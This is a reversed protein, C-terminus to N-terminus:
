QVEGFGIDRGTDWGKIDEEVSTVTKTVMIGEGTYGWGDDRDQRSTQEKEHSYGTIKMEFKSDSNRKVHGRALTEPLAIIPRQAPIPLSSPTISKTEVLEIDAVGDGIAHDHLRGQLMKEMSDGSGTSTNRKGGKWSVRQNEGSLVPSPLSSSMYKESSGPVRLGGRSTSRTRPHDINAVDLYHGHGSASKAPTGNTSPTNSPGHGYSSHGYSIKHTNKNSKGGSSFYSTLGRGLFRFLPRWTPMCAALIGASGEVTSLAGIPVNDWSPDVMDVHKAFMLRVISIICVTGGILFLSCITWKTRKDLQLRLIVPIPLLLLMWDTTIHIGGFVVIALAFNLCSASQGQPM